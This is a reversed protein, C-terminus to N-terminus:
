STIPLELRRDRKGRLPRLLLFRSLFDILCLLERNRGPYISKLYSLRSNVPEKSNKVAYFAMKTGSVRFIPYKRTRGSVIAYVVETSSRAMHKLDNVFANERVNERM